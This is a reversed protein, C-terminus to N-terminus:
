SDWFTTTYKQWCWLEHCRESHLLSYTIKIHIMSAALAGLINFHFCKLDWRFSRVSIVKQLSIEKSNTGWCRCRNNIKVFLKEILIRLLNLYMSFLEAKQSQCWLFRGFLAYFDIKLLNVKEGRCMCQIFKRM